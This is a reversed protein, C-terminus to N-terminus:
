KGVDFFPNGVSNCPKRARVNHRVGIPTGLGELHSTLMKTAHTTTPVTAPEEGDFSIRVVVRREYRLVLAGNGAVVRVLPQPHRDIKIPVHGPVHAELCQM